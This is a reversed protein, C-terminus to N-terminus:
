TLGFRSLIVAIYRYIEKKLKEDNLDILNKTILYQELM